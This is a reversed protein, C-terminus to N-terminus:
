SNVRLERRVAKMVEAGVAKPSTSPKFMPQRLSKPVQDIIAKAMQMEAESRPMRTNERWVEVYDLLGYALSLLNLEVAVLASFELAQQQFRNSETGFCDMLGQKLMPVVEDTRGEKLRSVALCPFLLGMPVRHPGNTRVSYAEEIRSRALQWDGQYVPILARNGGGIVLEFQSRTTQLEALRKFSDEYEWDSEEYRAQHCLFYARNGRASLTDVEEGTHAAHEITRDIAHMAVDWNRRISHAIAVSNWTARLIAPTTTCALLKESTQLVADVDNVWAQLGILRAMCREWHYDQEAPNEVIRELITLMVRPNSGSLSLTEPSSFVPRMLDPRKELLLEIVKMAVERQNSDLSPETTSAPSIHLRSWAIAQQLQEDALTTKPLTVIEKLTADAENLFTRARLYRAWLPGSLGPESLRV